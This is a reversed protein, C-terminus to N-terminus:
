TNQRQTRLGCGAYLLRIVGANGDLVNISNIFSAHGQVVSIFTCGVRSRKIPEMKKIKHRKKQM